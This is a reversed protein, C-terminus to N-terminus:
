ACGATYTTPVAELRMVTTSVITKNVIGLFPIFKYTFTMRVRVPEGYASTNNPFEVCVQAPTTVASTGGNRLEATDAQNRIQLQLSQTSAPNPKRNVAAFRAGAATLHTADNWYNYAKGFDLMGFVLLLFVPLVLAFEVLAQGNEDHTLSRIAHTLSRIPSM